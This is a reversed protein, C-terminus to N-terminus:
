LVFLNTKKINKNDISRMESNLVSTKNSNNILTTECQNYNFPFLNKDHLIKFKDDIYILLILNEPKILPNNIAKTISIKLDINRFINTNSNSTINTNKINNNNLKSSNTLLSQNLDILLDNGNNISLNSNEKLLKQNSFLNPENLLRLIIKPNYM